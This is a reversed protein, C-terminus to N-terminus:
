APPEWLEVPNGEPDRLHAFRGIAEMTQENFIGIGAARLQALMADMDAVRFNLMFRKDASFYDTDEAFPAFVTVGKKSVWPLTEMDTPARPVGLHREYWQALGQPDRARFFVGGIGQVKEM